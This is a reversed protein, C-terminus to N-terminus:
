TGDTGGDLESRVFPMFGGVEMIDRVMGRPASGRITADRTLSRVIGALFDVEVTEGPAVFKTVDPCELVPLGLHVSHRFFQPGFSEAVVGAIGAELLAHTAYDHGNGFGFAKGAVVIDGVRREAAFQEDVLALCLRARDGPAAFRKVPAIMEVSIRDGFVWARGRKAKGL